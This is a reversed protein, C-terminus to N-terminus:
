SGWVAQWDIPLQDPPRSLPLELRSYDTTRVNNQTKIESAHGALTLNWKVLEGFHLRSVGDDEVFSSIDFLLFLYLCYISM